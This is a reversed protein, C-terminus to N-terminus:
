LISWDRHVRHDKHVRRDKHDKHDRLDKRVRNAPCDRREVRVTAARIAPIALIAKKEKRAMRAMRAMQAMQGLRAQLALREMVVLRVLSDKNGLMAKLVPTARLDPLDLIVRQVRVVPCDQLEMRAMQDPFELSEKSEECIAYL